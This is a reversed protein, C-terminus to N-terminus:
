MEHKEIKVLAGPKQIVKLALAHGAAMAASITAGQVRAALFGANFSDGAATTDIVNQVPSVAPAEHGGIVSLPGDGGRKLVGSELNYGSFRTKLADLNEDEFIALEDEISPLAIDVARRWMDDMLNRAQARDKWLKPRYNSDFSVLGGSKRYAELQDIVRAQLSPDLIALTIGSLFILDFEAFIQHMDEDLFLTRAASRDRWYAFNREGKPDTEIAYLGPMRTPHRTIHNTGIKNSQIHASIRDSFRDRGLRTIYDVSAEGELLHALYYATNYTDGAVGIKATDGDGMIMEIMVEGICAIKKIHQM